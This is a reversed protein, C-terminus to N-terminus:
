KLKKGVLHKRSLSLRSRKFSKGEEESDESDLVVVTEANPFDEKQQKKTVTKKVSDQYLQESGRKRTLPKPSKASSGISLSKSDASSSNQNPPINEKNDFNDRRTLGSMGLSLKRGFRRKKHSSTGSKTGSGGGHDQHTQEDLEDSTPMLTNSSNTDLSRLTTRHSNSLLNEMGDANSCQPSSSVEVPLMKKAGRQKKNSSMNALADEIKIESGQEPQQEVHDTVQRLLSKTPPNSPIESHSSEKVDGDKSKPHGLSEMSLKRKTVSLRQSSGIISENGPIGLHIQHPPQELHDDDQGVALLKSSSGSFLNQSQSLSLKHKHPVNVQDDSNSGQPAVATELSLKRRAGVTKFSTKKENGINTVENEVSLPDLNVGETENMSPHEKPTKGGGSNGGVVGGVKAYRETMSRAKQDFIQRNYKYERSAECMLGDDPNPESLLLRISTIVTYINLSPQWAGKPPLNLIDLCIRGGNDINPHYIPTLFTVNPPQFPYRDPIQIQISFVGKAYVSGEPGEMMAYITSLSSSSSSSSSTSSSSSSTPLETPDASVMPFSVGPPPDTLLLKLEKQMRLGLREAQAM